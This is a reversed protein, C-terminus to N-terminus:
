SALLAELKKMEFKFGHKNLIKIAESVKSARFYHDNQHKIYGTKRSLETDWHYKSDVRWPVVQCPVTGVVLDTPFWDCNLVVVRTDDDGFLEKIREAYSKPSMGLYWQFDKEDLLSIEYEMEPNIIQYCVDGIEKIWPNPYHKVKKGKSVKAFQQPTVYKTIM